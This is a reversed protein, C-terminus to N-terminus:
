NLFGLREDPFNVHWSEDGGRIVMFVMKTAFNPSGSGFGTVIVFKIIGMAQKVRSGCGFGTAIVLETAMIVGGVREWGEEKADGM